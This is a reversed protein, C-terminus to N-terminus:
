VNIQEKFNKDLIELASSLIRDITKDTYGYEDYGFYKRECEGIFMHLKFSKDQEKHYWDKYQNLWYNDAIAWMELLESDTADTLPLHGNKRAYDTINDETFWYWYECIGYVGMGYKGYLDPYESEWGLGPTCNRVKDLLEERNMYVM